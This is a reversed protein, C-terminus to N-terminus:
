SFLFSLSVRFLLLSSFTIPKLEAEKNGARSAIVWPSVRSGPPYVVRLLPPGLSGTDDFAPLVHSVAPWEKVSKDKEEYRESGNVASSTTNAKINWFYRLSERVRVARAAVKRWFLWVWTILYMGKELKREM